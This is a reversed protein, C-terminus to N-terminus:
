EGWRALRGPLREEHHHRCLMGHAGVGKRLEGGRLCEICHGDLAEHWPSPPSCAALERAMAKGASRADGVKDFEVRSLLLPTDKWLVLFRYRGSPARLVKVKHKIRAATSRKNRSKTRGSQPPGPRRKPPAAKEQRFIALQAM